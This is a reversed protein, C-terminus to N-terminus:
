SYYDVEYLGDDDEDEGFMDLFKDCQYVGHNVSEDVLGCPHHKYDYHACYFCIHDM